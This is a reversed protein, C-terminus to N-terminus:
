LQKEAQSAWMPVHLVDKWSPVFFDFRAMPVGGQALLDRDPFMVLTSCGVAQAGDLESGRHGLFAAEDARVGLANLAREYM